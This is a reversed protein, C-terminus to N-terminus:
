QTKKKAAETNTNAESGLFDKIEQIKSQLRPDKPDRLALREYIQLSLQPQGQQFYIDALTPTLVHDPLELAADVDREDIEDEGFNAGIDITDSESVGSKFLQRIKEQVDDGDIAFPQEDATDILNSEISGIDILEGSFINEDQFSKDDTSIISDNFPQELSPEEFSSAPTEPLASSAADSVNFLDKLRAEIDDGSVEDEDSTGQATPEATTDSSSEEELSSFISDDVLSSESLLPTDASNEVPEDDTVTSQVTGQFSDAEISDDQMLNQIYDDVLNKNDDATLNEPPEEVINQALDQTSSEPSDKTSTILSIIESDITATYSFDVLNSDNELVLSEDSDAAPIDIGSFDPVANGDGHQAFLEDIRSSIDDGSVDQEDTTDATINESASLEEAIIAAVDFQQNTLIPDNDDITTQFPEGGFLASLTSEDDADTLESSGPLLENSDITPISSALPTASNNTTGMGSDFFVMDQESSGAADSGSDPEAFLFDLRDGIDEGTPEGAAPTFADASGAESVDMALAPAQAPPAAPISTGFLTDLQNEIDEGTPEDGMTMTFLGTENNEPVAEIDSGPTQELGFMTDFQNAIDSGTPESTEMTFIDAGSQPATDASSPLPDPTIEGFMADLQNEIDSGTPEDTSLAFIDASSSQPVPAAPAPTMPIPSSYQITETSIEGFMSDLQNEIDSGTPESAHAPLLDPTLITSTNDHVANLATHPTEAQITDMNQIDASEDIGFSKLNAASSAFSIPTIGLIDFVNGQISSPHKASLQKVAPNDPEMDFLIRYLGGAEETRGLKIFIDALMKLAAHNRKDAVCVKKFEEIAAQFNKQEAYCRGLVLRGTVYNPHEALGELCLSVAEGVEGKLRYKDALRSFVRSQPNAKLQQELVQIASTHAKSAM